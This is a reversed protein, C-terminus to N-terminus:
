SIPQEAQLRLMFDVNFRFFDVLEVASDIEAQHITKSPGISSQM